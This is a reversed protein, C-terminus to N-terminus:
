EVPVKIEEQYYFKNNNVKASTKVKSEIIINLPIPDGEKIMLQLLGIAGERASQLAEEQTDGDMMLGPLAPSHAFFSDGDPEVIIPVKFTLEKTTTKVKMAMEIAEV